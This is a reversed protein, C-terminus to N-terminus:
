VSIISVQLVGGDSIYLEQMRVLTLATFDTFAIFLM